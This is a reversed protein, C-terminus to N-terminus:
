LAGRAEGEDAMPIAIDALGLERRREIMRIILERGERSVRMLEVAMGYSAKPNAPDPPKVYKIRGLGVLVPTDDFLRLEFKVETGVPQSAKTPLFLGSRGVNPAFRQVMTDVDEYRLKIRLVVPPQAV